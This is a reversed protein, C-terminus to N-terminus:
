TWQDTHICYSSHDSTITSYKHKNVLRQNFLFSFWFFFLLFCGRCTFRFDKILFFFSWMILLGVRWVPLFRPEFLLGVKPLCFPLRIM